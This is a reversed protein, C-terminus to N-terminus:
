KLINPDLRKAIKEYKEQHYSDNLKSYASAMLLYGKAYDKDIKVAAEGVKVAEDYRELQILACGKNYYADKYGPNITLVKDFAAVSANIKKGNLYATALNFQLQADDPEEKAATEYLLIAKDYQENFMYTSALSKYLSKTKMGLLYAQEFAAQAKQGEGMEYYVAGLGHQFKASKPDLVSAKQMYKLANGTEGKVERYSLGLNYNTAAHNPAELLAKKFSTIAGYYDSEKLLQLGENYAAIHLSSTKTAAAAATTSTTNTTNTTNTATAISKTAATNAATTPKADNATAAPMKNTATRLAPVAVGTKAKAKEAYQQLQTDSPLLASARSLNVSASKFDSKNYQIIGLQSLADVHNPNLLLANEFSKIAEAENALKKHCLGALYHGEVTGGTKMSSTVQVIADQYSGQKYLSLGQRYAAIAVSKSSVAASATTQASAKLSFTLIFLLIFFKQMISIIYPNSQPM